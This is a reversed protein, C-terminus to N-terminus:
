FSYFFSLLALYRWAPPPQGSASQRSPPRASFSPAGSLWNGSSAASTSCYWGRTPAVVAAASSADFFRPPYPPSQAASPTSSSM